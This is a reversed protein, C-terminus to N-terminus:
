HNLSTHPTSLVASILSVTVPSAFYSTRRAPPKKKSLQTAQEPECAVFTAAGPAIAYIAEELPEPGINGKGIQAVLEGLARSPM